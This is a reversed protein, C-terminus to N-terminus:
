GAWPDGAGSRALDGARDHPRGITLPVATQPYVVVGRLPLIPLSEPIEPAQAPGGESQSEPTEDQVTITTSFSGPDHRPVAPFQASRPLSDMLRPERPDMPENQMM